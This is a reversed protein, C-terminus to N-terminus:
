KGRGYGSICRDRTTAVEDDSAPVHGYGVHVVEVAHVAVGGSVGGVPAGDGGEEDAADRREGAEYIVDNYRTIALGADRLATLV